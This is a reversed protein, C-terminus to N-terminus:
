LQTVGAALLVAQAEGPVNLDEKDSHQVGIAVLQLPV